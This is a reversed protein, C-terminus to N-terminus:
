NASLGNLMDAFYFNIQTNSGDSNGSNGSCGNGCSPSPSCTPTPTACSPSPSATPTTYGGSQYSQSTLLGYQIASAYCGIFLGSRVCGGYPYRTPTGGNLSLDLGTANQSTINSNRCNVPIGVPQSIGRFSNPCTTQNAQACLYGTQYLSVIGVLTGTCDPTGYYRLHAVPDEASVFV